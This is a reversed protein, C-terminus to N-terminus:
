LKKQFMHSEKTLLSLLLYSQTKRVYSVNAARAYIAGLCAAVPAGFPMAEMAPGALDLLVQMSSFHSSVSSTLVNPFLCILLLLYNGCFLHSM